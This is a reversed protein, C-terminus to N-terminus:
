HAFVPREPWCFEWLQQGGGFWGGFTLWTLDIHESHATVWVQRGSTLALPGGIVLHTRELLVGTETMRIYIGTLRDWRDDVEVVTEKPDVPEPVLSGRTLVVAFALRQGRHFPTPAFVWPANRHGDVLVPNASRENEATVAVRWSVDGHLSAKWLGGVSKATIYTDEGSTWIRWGGCRLGANPGQTIAFAYRLRTTM